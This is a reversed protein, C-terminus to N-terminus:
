IGVRSIAASEDFTWGHARLKAVGRTLEGIADEALIELVVDGAYGSRTVWGGIAGFDVDGSGIADHRWQGSPTDSLHLIGVRSGLIELGAVPDERAALANAVDYVVQVDGYGGRTLFQVMSQATALLGQPHNELVVGIGQRKAASYVCGFADEYSAMLRTDAEPVLPHRRGSAICIWRAGLEAARDIARRYADVAFAVVDRSPSAMNIDSSSLDIAILELGSRDLIRRLDATRVVDAQWPDFHPPTAMLQVRRFGRSAIAEFASVADTKWVFGFTHAGLVLQAM